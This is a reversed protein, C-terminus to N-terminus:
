EDPLQERIWDLILDIKLRAETIEERRRKDINTQRFECYERREDFETKNM